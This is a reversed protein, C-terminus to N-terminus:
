DYRNGRSAKFLWFIFGVVLLLGWFHPSFLLLLGGWLLRLVVLIVLAPLVFKVLGKVFLLLALVIVIGLFM